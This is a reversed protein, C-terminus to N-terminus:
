KLSCGEANVIYPLGNVLDLLFEITVVIHAILSILPNDVRLGEKNRKVRPATRKATGGGGGEYYNM